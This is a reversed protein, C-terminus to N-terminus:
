LTYKYKRSQWLEMFVFVSNIKIVFLIFIFKTISQLPFFVAFPHPIFLICFESFEIFIFSGLPVTISIGCFEVTASRAPFILSPSALLAMAAIMIKGTEIATSDLESETQPFNMAALTKIMFSFISDDYFGLIAAHHAYAGVGKMGYVSLEQLSRLDLDKTNRIDIALSKRLIAQEDDSEWTAADPLPDTAQTRYQDRLRNRLQIGERILAIFRAPDFNTNTITSFLSRSIFLGAERDTKGEALGFNAWFAIGRLIHILLDQLNATEDTKGCAGWYLCGRGMSTDQCQNCFMHM